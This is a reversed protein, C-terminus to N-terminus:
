FSFVASRRMPWCHVTTSAERTCIHAHIHDAISSFSILAWCVKGPYIITEFLCLWHKTSKSLHVVGWCILCRFAFLYVTLSILGMPDLQSYSSKAWRVLPLLLPLPLFFQYPSSISSFLPPSPQKWLHFLLWYTGSQLNYSSLIFTQFLLLAIFSFLPDYSSCSTCLWVSHRLKVGWKWTWERNKPKKMKCAGNILSCIWLSACQM